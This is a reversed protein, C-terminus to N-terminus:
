HSAANCIIGAIALNTMMASGGYSIFPLPVGTVPAVGMTMGINLIIQFALMTMLGVTLLSAYRHNASSAIKLTRHLFIFLTLLVALSGFFGWEEALVSFIFDTHQAPLFRLQTQTGHLLGKGLLGGSGIAVKSQIIQYGVGKPDSVLGLFTLIRQQQYSHLNSWLVPALLGVSVNIVFMSLFVWKGRRSFYLVVAILSMVVFFSIVHFSAIFAALPSILVFITFPSLGRWYLMPIVVSLYVLATGLDPQKIVLIFPALVLAFSTLLHRLQNPSHTEVSLYHALTIVLVPKMFESPQIKIGALEFWRQGGGAIAGFLELLALMLLLIGYLAYCSTYFVVAPIRTTLYFILLGVGIWLLQKNFNDRVAATASSYTASYVALLSFLSFLLVCILIVRDIKTKKLEPLLM